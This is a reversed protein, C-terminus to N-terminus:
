RNAQELLKFGLLTQSIILKNRVIRISGKGQPQWMDEGIADRIVGILSERIRQRQEAPTEDDEDDDDDDDDGFASSSGSRSDGDSGLSTDSFDIRPAVFNPVIMLLDGVDFVKVKLRNNLATGTSIRVIGGDVVWYVRNFKDQNASLDDTLLDLMKAITIKKAKITVPTNRDVNLMQLARWNVHISVSSVDRLFDIVNVLKIEEFNIERLVGPRAKRVPEKTTKGTRKRLPKPIPLRHRYLVRVQTTVRIEDGDIFWALPHGRTAAQILVLDLLQEVTAQTAKVLIKTKEKVGTAKLVPWEVTIPVKCLKECKKIAERLTGKILPKTVKTKMSESPTKKVTVVPKETSGVSTQLLAVFACIMLINRKM